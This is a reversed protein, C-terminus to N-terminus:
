PLIENGLDKPQEGTDMCIIQCGINDLAVSNPEHLNNACHQAM